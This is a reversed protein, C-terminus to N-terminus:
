RDSRIRRSPRYWRWSPVSPVGRVTRVRKFDLGRLPVGPLVQESERLTMREALVDAVCPMCRFTVRPSATIASSARDWAPMHLRGHPLEGRRSAGQGVATRSAPDQDRHDTPGARGRGCGRDHSQGLPEGSAPRPPRDGLFPIARGGGGRPHRTGESRDRVGHGPQRLRAAARDGRVDLGPDAAPRGPDAPGRRPRPQPAARHGTAALGVTSMSGNDNMLTGSATVVHCPNGEPGVPNTTSNVGHRQSLWTWKPVPYVGDYRLGTVATAPKQTRADPARIRAVDVGASGATCSMAHRRRPDEAQLSVPTVPECVPKADLWLEPHELGARVAALDDM